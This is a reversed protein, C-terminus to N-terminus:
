FGFPSGGQLAERARREAEERARREAEERESRLREEAARREEDVRDELARRRETLQNDLAVLTAEVDNELTDKRTQWEQRQNDLRALEERVPAELEARRQDLEERLQGEFAAVQAGVADRVASAVQNDLDSSWATRPFVSSGSLGAQVQFQNVSELAQRLINGSGWDAPMGFEADGFNWNMVGQWGSRYTADVSLQTNARRLGVPLDEHDIQWGSVRWDSVSFDVDVQNDERRDWVLELTASDAADLRTSNASATAPRNILRQDSSLDEIRGGWDGGETSATILAEKLWFRPTPNEEPFTVFYGTVGPEERVRNRHRETLRDIWPEATAYWRQGDAVWQAWQDGLLLGTLAIQGDASLNYTDLIAAIDEAPANALASLAERIDGQATDISDIFADINQRDRVVDRTLSEVESRAEVVANLSDFERERLAQLRQQYDELTQESPLDQQRSQVQETARDRTSRAETARTEVNLTGHRSLAEQPSPLDATEALRQAATPEERPPPEPRTVVRGPSARETNFQMGDVVLSEIVVKGTLLAMGDLQFSTRGIALANQSPQQPDTFALGEAVLGFPQWSVDASAVDVQAGQIRTLNSELLNRAIVDAFLYGGLWLGGVILAFPILGAWRFVKFVQTVNVKAM